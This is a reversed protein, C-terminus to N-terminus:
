NWGMNWSNAMQCVSRPKQLKLDNVKVMIVNRTYKFSESISYSNHSHCYTFMAVNIKSLM